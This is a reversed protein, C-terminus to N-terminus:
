SNERKKLLEIQDELSKTQDITEFWNNLQRIEYYYKDKKRENDCENDSDYDSENGSESKNVIVKM